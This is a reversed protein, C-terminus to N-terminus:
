ASMNLSLFIFRMVMRPVTATALRSSFTWGSDDNDDESYLDKEISTIREM